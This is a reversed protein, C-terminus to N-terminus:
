TSAVNALDADGFFTEVPVPSGDNYTTIVIGGLVDVTLLGLLSGQEVAFGVEYGAPIDEGIDLNLFNTEALIFVDTASDTTDANTTNNFNNFGDELCTGIFLECNTSATVSPFNPTTLAIDCNYSCGDVEEYAYYIRITSLLSSNAM